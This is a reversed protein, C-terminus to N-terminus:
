GTEMNPRWKGGKKIHIGEFFLKLIFLDFKNKNKQICCINLLNYYYQSNKLIFDHFSNEHKKVFLLKQFTFNM